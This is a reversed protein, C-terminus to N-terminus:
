GISRARSSHARHQAGAKAAELPPEPTASTTSFVQFSAAPWILVTTSLTTKGARSMIRAM